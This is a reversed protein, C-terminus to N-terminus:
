AFSTPNSPPKEAFDSAVRASVAAANREAGAGWRPEGWPAPHGGPWRGRGPPAGPMPHHGREVQRRHNGARRCTGRSRVAHHPRSMGVLRRFEARNAALIPIVYFLTLFWASLDHGILVLVVLLVTYALLFILVESTLKEFAKSLVREYPANSSSGQLNLDTRKAM